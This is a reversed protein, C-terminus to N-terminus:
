AVIQIVQFDGDLDGSPSTTHTGDTKFNILFFKKKDSADKDYIVYEGYSTYSGTIGKALKELASRGPHQVYVDFENENKIKFSTVKCALWNDTIIQPDLNFWHSSVTWHLCLEPKVVALM